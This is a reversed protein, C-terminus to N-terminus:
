KQHKLHAMDSNFCNALSKRRIQYYLIIKLCEREIIKKLQHRVWKRTPSQPWGTLTLRWNWCVSALTTYARCEASMSKGYEVYLMMFTRM